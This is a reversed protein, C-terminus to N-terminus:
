VPTNSVGYPHKFDDIPIDGDNQVWWIYIGESLKEQMMQTVFFPRNAPSNVVKAELVQYYDFKTRSKAITVTGKTMHGSSEMVNDIDTFYDSTPGTVM